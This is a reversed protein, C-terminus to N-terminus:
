AIMRGNGIMRRDEGLVFLVRELGAFGEDIIVVIV